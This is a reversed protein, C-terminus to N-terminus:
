LIRTKSNSSNVTPTRQLHGLGKRKLTQVVKKTRQNREVEEMRYSIRIIQPKSRPLHSFRKRDRRRRAKTRATDNLRAKAPLNSLPIPQKITLLTTSKPIQM